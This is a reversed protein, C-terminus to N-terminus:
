LPNIPHPNIYPLPIVGDQRNRGQYLPYIEGAPEMEVVANGRWVTRFEVEGIRETKRVTEDPFEVRVKTGGALYGLELYTGELPVKKEKGAIVVRTREAKAWGPKRVRLKKGATMEIELMAKGPMYSTIVASPLRKSFQLSVQVTDGKEQAAYYWADYLGRPGSGFCCQVAAVTDEATQVFDNPGSITGFGGLARNMVDKTTFWKPDGHPLPKTITAPIKEIFDTRLMQGELLQNMAIREAKDWYKEDYYQALQLTAELYSVTGCTECCLRGKVRPRSTNEPTWGFDPTFGRGTFEKYANEAWAKFERVGLVQGVLFVGSITELSTNVSWINKGFDPMQDVVLQSFKGALEAALPEKTDEYFRMVPLLLMGNFSAPFDAGMDGTGSRPDKIDINGVVRRGSPPYPFWTGNVVRMPLIKSGVQEYNFDPFWLYRNNKEAVTYFAHVMSRATELARPDGSARYYSVMGLIVRTNEPLHAWRGKPRDKETTGGWLFPYQPPNWAVGEDVDNMANQAIRHVICDNTQDNTANRNLWLSDTHRGMDDVFDGVTHVMHPAWTDFYIVSYAIYGLNPDLCTTRANIAISMRGQLDFPHLETVNRITEDDAWRMQLNGRVVAPVKGPVIGSARLQTSRSYKSSAAVVALGASVQKLFDRRRM